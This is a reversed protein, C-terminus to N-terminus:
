PTKKAAAGGNDDDIGATQNIGFMRVGNMFPLKGLMTAAWLAANVLCVTREYDAAHCAVWCLLCPAVQFTERVPRTDQTAELQEWLTLANMEGSDDYLSGKLWHMYVITVVAHIANTWTWSLASVVHGREAPVLLVLCILLQVVALLTFYLGIIMGLSQSTLTGRHRNMEFPLLDDTQGYLGSYTRPIDRSYFRRRPSQENAIANGNSDSPKYYDASASRPRVPSSPAAPPNASSTAADPKKLKCLSARAGISSPPGSSGSSSPAASAGWSFFRGM